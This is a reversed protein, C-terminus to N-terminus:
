GRVSPRGPFPACRLLAQMVASLRKRPVIVILGPAEPAIYVESASAENSTGIQAGAQLTLGDLAWKLGRSRARVPALPFLSVIDGPELTLTIEPPCHFVLEDPRFLLIHRHAFRMLAHLAALEHDLRGGSFGFGLSLPSDTRLLVKEFDTTEQEQVQIIREDPLKAQVEPTLSDLDGIVLDPVIGASLAAAGGGDAAVFHTAIQRALDLDQPGIPGAGFLSLPANTYFLTNM